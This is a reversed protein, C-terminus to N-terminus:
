WPIENGKWDYFKGNDEKTLSKIVKVMGFISEYPELPANEDSTMPTKVWGPHLSIIIIDLNRLEVFLMKTIINLAAKSASYGWGGIRDKNTISGNISTINVVIPDKGRELLPTLGETVLLPGVSNVLYTRCLDEQNLEGFKYRTKENGSKIGANNILIDLQKIDSKVKHFFTNRSVEDAVDLQIIILQNNFESKLKHLQLANNPTRCTSIVHYGMNLYQKTFELGIGKSGGTILIKKM